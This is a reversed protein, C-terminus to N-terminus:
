THIRALSRDVKYPNAYGLATLIRIELAEMADAEEGTQHDHGLLHLVGHIVLHAWHAETEKGQERAENVVLPACIVLDGLLNLGLNAPLDAPFSLVNTPGSIGRYSQNFRSAEDTGTIHISIEPTLECRFTSNELALKVWLNMLEDNPTELDTNRNLIITALM